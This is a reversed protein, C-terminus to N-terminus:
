SSPPRSNVCPTGSCGYGSGHTLTRVRAACRPALRKITLLRSKSVPATGAYAASVRLTGRFSRLKSAARAGGELEVQPHPNRQGAQRHAHAHRRHALPRARAPARGVAAVVLRATVRCDARCTVKFRASRKGSGPLTFRRGAHATVGARRRSPTPVPGAGAARRPPEPAPPPDAAPRGYVAFETLDRFPGGFNSRLSVRM